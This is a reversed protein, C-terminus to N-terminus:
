EQPTYNTPSEQSQKDENAHQDVFARASPNQMITFLVQNRRNSDSSQLAHELNAGYKELGPQNKLTNALANVTEHPANFIARGLKAVPNKTVGANIPSRLRGALNASSLAMARGTEGTGTLVKAMTSAVGTHPNLADMSNRAVADDSYKKIMDEIASAPRQLASEKISGSALREAEQQEFTKLGKM